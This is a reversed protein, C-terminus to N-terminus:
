KVVYKKGNQILIGKASNSVRQGSINYVPKTWDIDGISLEDILTSLLDDDLADFFALRAAKTMSDNSTSGNELRLYALGKSMTFRQGGDVGWYFKLDTKAAANRYMMKYYYYASANTQGADVTGGQSAFLRSNESIVPSLPENKDKIYYTKTAFDDGPNAKNKSFILVGTNKPVYYGEVEKGNIKEYRYNFKKVVLKSFKKANLIAYVGERSDYQAPNKVVAPSIGENTGTAVVAPDDAVIFVDHETNSFTIWYGAPNAGIAKLTQPGDLDSVLVTNETGVKYTYAGLSGMASEGASSFYLEYTVNEGGVFPVFEDNVNHGMFVTKWTGDVQKTMVRATGDVYLVQPQFDVADDVYQDLTNYTFTLSGDSNYCIGYNLKLPESVLEKKGTEANTQYLKATGETQLYLWKLVKFDEPMTSTHVYFTKEQENYQGKDDKVKVYFVYDKDAELGSIVLDTEIGSGVRQTLILEDDADRVEYTVGGWDDTAQVTLNANTYNVKEAPVTVENAEPVVWVPPNDVDHTRNVVDSWFYVNDIYLETGAPLDSVDRQGDQVPGGILFQCFNNVHEDTTGFIIQDTFVSIPIDVSNWKGKEVPIDCTVASGNNWQFTVEQVDTVPYIDIHLYDMETTALDAMDHSLEYIQMRRVREQTSKFHLVLDDIYDIPKLPHDELTEMPEGHHPNNEDKDSEGLWYNGNPYYESVNQRNKSDDVFSDSFATAVIVASPIPAHPIAVDKVDQKNPDIIEPDDNGDIEVVSLDTITIKTGPETVSNEHGSADVVLIAGPLYKGHLNRIEYTYGDVCDAVTLYGHEDTIISTEGDHNRWGTESSELKVTLYPPTHIVEPDACNEFDAKITFKINYNFDESLSIVEKGADDVSILKRFQAQWQQNVGVPMEYSYVPNTPDSFDVAYDNVAKFGGWGPEFDVLPKPAAKLLEGRPETIGEITEESQHILTKFEKVFTQGGAHITVTQTTNPELNMMPIITEEGAKSAWVQTHTERTLVGADPKLWTYEISVEKDTDLAPIHVVATTNTVDSISCNDTPADPGYFYIGCVDFYDAYPAPFDGLQINILNGTFATVDNFSMGNNILVSMPIDISYWNNDNRSMTATTKTDGPLGITVETSGNGQLDFKLTNQLSTRLDLHLTFDDTIGSLNIPTNYTAAVGGYKYYPTGDGEKVATNLVYNHYDEKGYINVHGTAAGNDVMVNGKHDWGDWIDFLYGDDKKARLDVIRSGDPIEALTEDDLDIIYYANAKIFEHPTTTTTIAGNEVYADLNSYIKKGDVTAIVYVPIGHDATYKSGSMTGADSPSAEWTVGDTVAAGTNDYLTFTANDGKALVVQGDTAASNARVYYGDNEPNGYLYLEQIDLKTGQEGGASVSLVNGTFRETDTYLLGNVYFLKLPLDVDHYEGNCASEPLTYKATGNGALTVTIPQGNTVKAKIHLTYNKDIATLDTPFKLNYGAGSWGKDKVVFSRTGSTADYSGTMTSGNDWIMLNRNKGDDRLDILEKGNLSEYTSKGGEILFVKSYAGHSQDVKPGVGELEEETVITNDTGVPQFVRVYDIYMSKQSDTNPLATIQDETDLGVYGNKQSGVALNFLYYNFHKFYNGKDNPVEFYKFEQYGPNAVVKGDVNITSPVGNDVYCVISEEDWECRFVHYNGDQINFPAVGAGSVQQHDNWATGYHLAGNAFSQAHEQSDLGGAMGMEVIDLEGCAPWDSTLYDNGMTWFAPWLGKYTQPMKIRATLIGYKFSVKSITNVRGSTFPKGDYDQNTATLILNGNTVFVGNESYTQLEGNGGGNNTYEINWYKPDPLTHTGYYENNAANFEDSWALKYEQGRITMTEVAPKAADEVEGDGRGVIHDPHQVPMHKKVAINYIEVKMPIVNNGFDFVLTGNTEGGTYTYNSITYTREGGGGLQTMIIIGDKDDLKALMNPINNDSRVTFSLDYQYGPEYITTPIGGALKVQSQWRDASGNKLNIYLKGEEDDYRAYDNLDDANSKGEEVYANWNKDAYYRGTVSANKYNFLNDAIPAPTVDCFYVNDIWLDTFEDYGEIALQFFEAPNFGSTGVLDSVKIDISNWKKAKIPTNIATALVSRNSVPRINIDGDTLAYIDIHLYDKNTLDTQSFNGWGIKTSMTGNYHLTKSGDYTEETLTARTPDWNQNYVPEGNGNSEITTYADSYLSVVKGAPRTPTPAATLPQTIATVTVACTAEVGPHEVSTATITANGPKIATITGDASVKAVEEDSSTWKVYKYSAGDPNYTVDLKKTTTEILTASEDISISTLDVVEDRYFYLNDLWFTKNEAKDVKFSTVSTWDEIKSLDGENLAIDFSNWAGGIIQIMKGNNDSKATIPVLNIEMDDEAWIDVHLKEMASCNLVAEDSWQMGFYGTTNVLKMANHDATFSAGGGWEEFRFGAPTTYTDSFISKVNKQPLTPAPADGQPETAGAAIVTVTCSAVKEGDVTTATITATGEAIATVTGDSAVSVYENGGTWTVNKNAADAPSITAVLKFTKDVPLTINTKNLSVGEVAIPAKWYANFEWFSMGWETGNTVGQFRVFKTTYDSGLDVIQTGHNEGAVSIIAPAERVEKVTTWETGNDSIQIDYASAYAGDWDIEVTNIKKAEDYEIAWWETGANSGAAWRTHNNGDAAFKPLYGAGANSSATINENKVTITCTATQDGATATITATGVGVATVVGNVVTAVGDNDTTWTVTKDTANVPAVTATLTVTGGVTLTQSTKDLTVSSVPIADAAYFYVNAIAVVDDAAFNDFKLWRVNEADGTAIGALPIDFSTWGNATTQGLTGRNSDNVFFTPTRSSSCWVDVHMTNMSSVDLGTNEGSRYGDKGRISNDDTTNSGWIVVAGTMKYIRCDTGDIPRTETLPSSGWNNTLYTDEINSTYVNSYISRVKEASVTPATPAVTPGYSNDSVTVTLTTKGSIYTADAAQRITITTTGVAVPTITGDAAITAVGENSSSFSLAGESSTSYDVGAALVYPDASLDVVVNKLSKIDNHNECLSGYTYEFTPRCWADNNEDTAWALANTTFKIKAPSPLVADAKKILTFEKGEFSSGSFYDSAPESTAFGDGSLITFGGLGGEFGGNRSYQM